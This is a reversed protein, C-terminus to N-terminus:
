SDLLCRLASWYSSGVVVDVWVVVFSDLFNDNINFKHIHYNNDGMFIHVIFDHTELM